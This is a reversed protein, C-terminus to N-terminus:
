DPDLTTDSGPVFTLSIGKILDLPRELKVLCLDYNNGASKDYKPHIIWQNSTRKFEETEQKQQHKDNFIMKVEIKLLNITVLRVTRVAILVDFYSQFRGSQLLLSCCDFDVEQQYHFWRLFKPGLGELQSAM